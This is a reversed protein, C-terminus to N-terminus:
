PRAENVLRKMDELRGYRSDPAFPLVGDLQAGFPMRHQRKM